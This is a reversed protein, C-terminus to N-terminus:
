KKDKEPNNIKVISQLCNYWLNFQEYNDFIFEAKPVFRKGMIISFIFYKCEVAKMKEFHQMRISSIEDNTSIFKNIDFNEQNKGEKLYIKYIKIIKEMEESLNIDIIDKLDIGIYKQNSKQNIKLKNFSKEILISGEFYNFNIPNADSNSLPNFKINNSDSLKFYCSSEEIDQTIIKYKPNDYQNSTFTKNIDNYSLTKTRSPSKSKNYFQPTNNMKFLIRSKCSVKNLKIPSHFNNNGKQPTFKIKKLPIFKMDKIVIINKKNESEEANSKSISLAKNNEINNSYFRERSNNEEEKENNNNNNEKNQEKKIINNNNEININNNILLNNVNINNVNCNDKWKNQLNKVNLVKVKNVKDDTSKNVEADVKENLNPTDKVIVTKECIEEKKGENLFGLEEQFHKDLFFSMCQKDANELHIKNKEGGRVQDRNEDIFKKLENKKTEYSLIKNKYNENRSHLNSIKEKIETKQEKYKKNLFKLIGSIEVNITNIKLLQRLFSNIIPEPYKGRNQNSIFISIKTFFNSIIKKSDIVSSSKMESSFRQYGINIKQLLRNRTEIEKKGLIDEAFNIVQEVFKKKDSFKIDDIKIEINDNYELINITAFPNDDNINNENLTKIQGNFKKNNQAQSSKVLSSLKIKYIEELSEKNSLLDILIVQKEKKEQKLDSLVTELKKITKNNEELKNEVYSIETMIKNYETKSTLYKKYLSYNEQDEHNRSTENFSIDLTMMSNQFNPFNITEIESINNTSIPSKSPKNINRSNLKKFIPKTKNGSFKATKVNRLKM